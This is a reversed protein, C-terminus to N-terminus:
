TTVTLLYPTIDFRLTKAYTQLKVLDLKKTGKGRYSLAMKLAKIAVECSLIRFSDIITREIDFIPVQIGGIEIKTLGLRMNRFRVIKLLPGRNISTGHSVAIWHQRPIEETIEYIALASILCVVGNPVTGVSEILDEWPFSTQPYQYDSSQYIGRSLRKLYGKKLYHGLLAASVGLQKAEQTTFYPKQLLLALSMLRDPKKM